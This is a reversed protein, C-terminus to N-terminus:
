KPVLSRARNRICDATRRQQVWRGVDNEETGCGVIGVTYRLACEADDDDFTITSDIFYLLACGAFDYDLDLALIM